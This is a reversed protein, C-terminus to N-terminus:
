NGAIITTQCFQLRERKRCIFRISILEIEVFRAARLQFFNSQFFFFIFLTIIIDIASIPHSGVPHLREITSPGSLDRAPQSAVPPMGAPMLEHMKSTKIASQHHHNAYIDDRRHSSQIENALDIQKRSKADKSRDIPEARKRCIFSFLRCIVPSQFLTPTLLASSPPSRFEFLFCAVVIINFRTRSTIRDM